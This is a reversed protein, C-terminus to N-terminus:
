TGPNESRPRYYTDGRQTLKASEGVAQIATALKAKSDVRLQPRKFFALYNEPVNYGLAYFIKTSIVEAATTMEQNGPPDFKLFYVDGRGDRIRFGPTIGETKAGIVDWAKEM